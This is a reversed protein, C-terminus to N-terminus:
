PRSPYVANARDRATLRLGAWHDAIDSIDLADTIYGQGALWLANQGLGCAVDLARYPRMEFLPPVVEFLLPDPSPYSDTLNRRYYANWFQRETASM